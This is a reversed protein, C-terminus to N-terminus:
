KGLGKMRIAPVYPNEPLLEPREAGDAWHRGIMYLLNLTEITGDYRWRPDMEDSPQHYRGAFLETFMKNADEESMGRVRRGTGTSLAVVGRACLPFHDSRFTGGGTDAGGINLELGLEEGIAKVTDLATTFKVIGAGFDETPGYVNVVDINVAMATKDLPFIPNMAYYEAGLLGSEEATTAMFVISREPAPMGSYARALCIIAAVGSANDRAGNYIDDGNIARGIGFHDWHGCYVIAEDGKSTGPLVGIVNPAEFERHEQKFETKLHLGLPMPRFGRSDAKEKLEAYNTGVFALAKDFAPQSVWAKILLQNPISDKIQLREVAFSNQVVSFDYTATEDTHILVLGKAGKARAIEEKYTWRGYYSLSENYFGTKELDPDNVLMVLIKGQVDTGKYDDWNFEPAEIGYGVFLLDGEAGVQDLPQESNLVVEEVPVLSVSREGASLTYSISDQITAIGLMPVQQFYGQEASIPKLGIAEFQAAIYATALEGGRTGPARGECIDSALFRLHAVFEAETFKPQDASPKEAGATALISVLCLIATSFLITKKM